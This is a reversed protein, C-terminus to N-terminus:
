WDDNASKAPKEDGMSKNKDGSGALAADGGSTNLDEEFQFDLEERSDVFESGDAAKQDLFLYFFLNFIDSIDGGDEASLLLTEPESVRNIGQM